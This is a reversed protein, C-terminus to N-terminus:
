AVTTAATALMMEVPELAPRFDPDCNRQLAAVSAQYREIAAQKDELRKGIAGMWTLDTRGDQDYGVWSALSILRPTLRTWQQPWRERAIRFVIRHIRELHTTPMACRKSRGPM